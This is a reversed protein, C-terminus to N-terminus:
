SFDFSKTFVVSGTQSYITETLGTPTLDLTAFGNLVRNAQAPTTNPFAKDMPEHAVWDAVPKLKGNKEYLGHAKGYPIAAHGLIRAVCGQQGPFSQDSYAVGTHTHGFYWFEPARGLANTVDNWLGTAKTGDFDVCVHHTFIIVPKGRKGYEAIFELQAKERIAGEMYLIAKTNEYTADYASDLGLLIWHDSEVAFYGVGQQGSFNGSDLAEYYGNMGGYMEHNSNLTLNNKLNSAAILDIFNEKEEGAPWRHRDTGAYYVDGLHINYDSKQKELQELVMQAPSDLNGDPFFGTGWDGYVGVRLTSSPAKIEINGTRFKAIANKDILNFIYNIPAYAWGLDLQEYKSFGVITGDSLVVGAAILDRFSDLHKQTIKPEPLGLLRALEPHSEEIVALALGFELAAGSAESQDAGLKGANQATDELRAILAAESSRLQKILAALPGQEDKLSGLEHETFASVKSHLESCLKTIHTSIEASLKM